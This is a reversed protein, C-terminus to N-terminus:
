RMTNKDQIHRKRLRYKHTQKTKMQRLALRKDKIKGTIRHQIDYLFCIEKFALQYNIKLPFLFGVANIACM